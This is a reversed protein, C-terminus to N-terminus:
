LGVYNEFAMYFYETKDSLNVPSSDKLMRSDIFIYVSFGCKLFLLLIVGIQM